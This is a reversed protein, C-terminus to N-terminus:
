LAKMYAFLKKPLHSGSKLFIWLFNKRKWIVDRYSICITYTVMLVKLSDESVAMSINKEIKSNPVQTWIIQFIGAISSLKEYVQMYRKEQM